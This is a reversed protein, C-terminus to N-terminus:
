HAVSFKEKAWALYGGKVNLVNTYGNAQMLSTAIASRAGSRCQLLYTKDKPLEELHNVLVGLMKHIAAPIRGEDWESQNRVDILQYNDDELLEYLEKVTIEGYSETKEKDVLTLASDIFAVVRDLGIARLSERIADVKDGPAILVIDQDYGILWGAWNTFSKNFPINIAGKYHARAFDANGRTDLFVTAKGYKGLEEVNHLEPIRGGEILEPGIKNLKKMMAFYKPPEPQGSLLTKVFKEEDEPKLAWNNLKEYGVTSMPVAGLAKGCASGAGHAPWVQLFDPLGKFRQLSHFMQRAGIEATNAFGAAKELLDPRGIDGVFVFDGTFIGMPESSGGGKDTLIFSISEPTHGPTHMVKFEIHGLTFEAGDKLLVSKLGDLYEYKWNEDGEDSVYLTADCKTALERAGSLYDAHIHTETVAVIRLGENKATILYQGIKRAPDVVIAEGTQQCGVLYSMQALNEDFFSRFFM